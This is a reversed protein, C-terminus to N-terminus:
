VSSRRLHTVILLLLCPAGVVSTVVGVPLPFLLHQAVLDSLVLMAAGVLGAAFPTPGATRFLRLAAQPAVFAVFGIPGAVATVVSAAVVALGLAALETRGARVGLSTAVDRGVRLSGVSRGLALCAVAGALMVPAVLALDESKMGAVSGSLWRAAVAAGDTTARTMMWSIAALAVANVGLGVLVLRMGDFGGRWALALILATTLLGGLLAAPTLISTASADSPGLGTDPTTVFFVAVASAGATVGLIDPSAIPNRTISQTLAGSMGLGFGVLAAGAARVLRGDVIVLQEIRTGSGLLTAAVRDAGFSLTGLFLAAVTAIMLVGGVALSMAWVRRPLAIGVPGLALTSRRRAPVARRTTTASM